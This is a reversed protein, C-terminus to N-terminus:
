SLASLALPRGYSCEIHQDSLITMAFLPLLFSYLVSLIASKQEQLAQLICLVQWDQM